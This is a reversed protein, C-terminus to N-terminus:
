GRLKVTGSKVERTLGARIWKRMLTEPTAGKEKAKRKIADLEWEEIAVGVVVM